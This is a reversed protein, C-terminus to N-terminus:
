PNAGLSGAVHTFHESLWCIAVYFALWVGAEMCEMVLYLYDDAEYVDFLRTIHPHDKASCERSAQPFAPTSHQQPAM